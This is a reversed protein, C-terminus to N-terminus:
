VERSFFTDGRWPVSDLFRERMRLKGVKSYFFMGCAGLLFYAGAIIGIWRMPLHLVRPFLHGVALALTGTILLGAIIQPSDIGYDPRRQM